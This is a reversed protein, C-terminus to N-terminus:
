CYLNWGICFLDLLVCGPSVLSADDGEREKGGRGGRKGRFLSLFSLFFLSMFSLFFLFLFIVGKGGGDGGMRKRGRIIINHIVKLKKNATVFLVLAQALVATDETCPV